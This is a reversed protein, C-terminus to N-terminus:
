MKLENDTEKTLGYYVVVFVSYLVAIVGVFSFPGLADLSPLCCLPFVVITALICLAWPNEAFWNDPNAIKIFAVAQSEIVILYGVCTFFCYTVITSMLINSAREGYMRLVVEQYTKGGFKRTCRM